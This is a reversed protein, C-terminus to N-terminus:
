VNSLILTSDVVSLFPAVTRGLGVEALGADYAAIAKNYEANKVKM